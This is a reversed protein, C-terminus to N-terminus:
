NFTPHYKCMIHADEEGNVKWEMPKADMWSRERFLNDNWLSKRIRIDSKYKDPLMRRHLFSNGRAQTWKWGQEGEEEYWSM